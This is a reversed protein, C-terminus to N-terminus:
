TKIHEANVERFLSQHSALRELSASMGSEREETVPGGPVSVELVGSALAL